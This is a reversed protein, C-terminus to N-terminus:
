IWGAERLSSVRSRAVPVTEGSVLQIVYDREHKLVRSVAARAVWWSRHVQIGDQEKLRAVQDRFRGREIKTGDVTTLLLYHEQAQVTLIESYHSNKAIEKSPSRHAGALWDLLLAGAGLVFVPPVLFLVFESYPDHGKPLLPTYKLLALEAASLFTTCTLAVIGALWSFQLKPVLLTFILRAQVIVLGVVVSWMIVRLPLSINDTAFGRGIVLLAVILAAYALQLLVPRPLVPQPGNM